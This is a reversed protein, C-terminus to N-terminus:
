NCIDTVDRSLWVQNVDIVDRNAYIALVEASLGRVDVGIMLPAALVAWMSLQARYEDLTQGAGAAARQIRLYDFSSWRGGWRDGGGAGARDNVRAEVARDVVATWGEFDDPVDASVRWVNCGAFVGGRWPADPYNACEYVVRRHGPPELAAEASDIAHRMAPFSQRRTSATTNCLCHKVYTLGWERVWLGVDEAAHGGSGRHGAGLQGACTFDGGTTYLGLNLGRRRLYRSTDGMGSPFKRSDAQLGGGRRERASWSDDIVVTRYGAAALGTAVLADATARITAEDTKAWGSEGGLAYWSDWGMPPLAAAEAEAGSSWTRARGRAAEERALRDGVPSARTSLGALVAWMIGALRLGPGCRAGLLRRQRVMKTLKKNTHVRCAHCGANESAKQKKRPAIRANRACPSSGPSGRHREAVQHAEQGHRGVKQVHPHTASGKSRGRVREARGAPHGATKPLCPFGEETRVETRADVSVCAASRRLVTVPQCSMDFALVSCWM